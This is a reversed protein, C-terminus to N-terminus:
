LNGQEEEGRVVLVDCKAYRIIHESVSGILFREVANLGTAGCMILDVKHKPAIEKSIKSKPNGFELVLEVKELGAEAATKKYDELLDEAFLNAREAIARSYAEVASYAKVDVIHAITLTANNRKAVQIAKKFAKEAEKSGDVAILINTYTNNM